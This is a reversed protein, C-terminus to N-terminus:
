SDGQLLVAFAGVSLLWDARSVGQRVQCASGFADDPTSTAMVVIGVDEASVGAMELAKRCAAAAHGSM